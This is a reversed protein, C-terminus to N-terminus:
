RRKGSERKGGKAETRLMESLADLRRTLEGRHMAEVREVPWRGHRLLLQTVWDLSPVQVAPDFADALTELRWRLWARGDGM